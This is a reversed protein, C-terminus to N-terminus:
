KIHQGVPLNSDSVVSCGSCFVLGFWVLGFRLSVFVFFIVRNLIIRSKVLAPM